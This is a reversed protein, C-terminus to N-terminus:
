LRAASKADLYAIEVNWCACGNAPTPSIEYIALAAKFEVWAHIRAAAEAIAKDGVKRLNQWSKRESKVM